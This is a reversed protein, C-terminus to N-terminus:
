GGSLKNEKKRQNYKGSPLSKIFYNGQIQIVGQM